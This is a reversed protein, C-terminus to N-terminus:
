NDTLLISLEQDNFSDRSTYRRSKGFRFQSFVAVTLLNGGFNSPHLSACWNMNSRPIRTPHHRTAQHCAGAIQLKAPLGRVNDIQGLTQM